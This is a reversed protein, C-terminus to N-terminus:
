LIEVTIEQRMCSLACSDFRWLVLKFKSCHSDSMLVTRYKLLLFVFVSFKRLLGLRSMCRREISFEKIAFLYRKGIIPPGSQVRGNFESFMIKWFSLMPPFACVRISACGTAIEKEWHQRTTKIYLSPLRPTNSKLHEQQVHRRALFEVKLTETVSVGFILM